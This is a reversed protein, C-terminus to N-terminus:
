FMKKLLNKKKLKKIRNYSGFCLPDLNDIIKVEFNKQILLKSIESGILGAGGLILIKNKQKKKRNQLRMTM